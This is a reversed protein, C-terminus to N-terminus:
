TDWEQTLMQVSANLWSGMVQPLETIENTTLKGGKINWLVWIGAIADLDVDKIMESVLGELDILAGVMTPDEANLIKIFDEREFLNFKSQLLFALAVTICFDWAKAPDKNKSNKLVSELLPFKDLLTTLSVIAHIELTSVFNDKNM